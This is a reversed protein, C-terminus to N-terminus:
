DCIFSGQNSVLTGSCGKMPVPIGPKTQKGVEFLKDKESTVHTAKVKYSKNRINPAGEGGWGKINNDSPQLKYKTHM